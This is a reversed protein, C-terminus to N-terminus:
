ITASPAYFSFSTGCDVSFFMRVFICFFVFDRFCFWILWCFLCFVLLVFVFRTGMICSIPARLHDASRAARADTERQLRMKRSLDKRQAAERDKQEVEAQMRDEEEKKLRNEEDRKAREIGLLQKKKILNQTTLFPYISPHFCFYYIHLHQYGAGRFWVWSIMMM